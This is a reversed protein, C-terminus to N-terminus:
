CQEVLKDLLQNYENTELGRIVPSLFNDFKQRLIEKSHQQGLLTTVIVFFLHDKMQQEEPLESFPVICPHLKKDPDKKPGYVWDNEQKEKLWNEHSQEPKGVVGNKISMVGDIASDRQWQDCFNWPEQSYDGITQCYIRNVEHAITAIETTSNM